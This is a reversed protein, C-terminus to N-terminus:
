LIRPAFAGSYALQLSKKQTRVGPACTRVEPVCTRVGDHQTRARMQCAETHRTTSLIQTGSRDAPRQLDRLM